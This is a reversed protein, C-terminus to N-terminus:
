GFFGGPKRILFQLLCGSFADVQDDYTGGPFQTLEDLFVPLWYANRPLKVKGSEVTGTVRNAQQIKDNFLKAPLVPLNTDARLSQVASQGSAKDEVFIHSPEWKEAQDKIARLLGPYELRQRFVDMVAYDTPYQTITVCASYDNSQGTKYATDWYQFTVAGKEIVDSYTWWDKKFLGGEAATPRQQYLGPWHVPGYVERNRQLEAIPFAEPWLPTEPPRGLIDDDEALAPLRLYEWPDGNTQAEQGALLRGVLDDQHWRTMVIIISGNPQLRTRVTSLWWNWVRARQTPSNAEEFNKIPDDVIILDFHRGTFAGGVGASLMSGGESTEWDTASAVDERIHVGTLSEKAILTDRVVRGFSTSLTASYSSLGIRKEPWNCFYWCPTYKSILESKGHGPPISVIIFKPGDAISAITRSILDLHPYRQWGGDSLKAATAAPTARWANQM